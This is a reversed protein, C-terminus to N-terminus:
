RPYLRGSMEMVNSSPVTSNVFGMANINIAATGVANLKLSLGNAMPTVYSTDILM